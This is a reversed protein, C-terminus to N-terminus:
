QKYDHASHAPHRGRELELDVITKIKKFLAREKKAAWTDRKPDGSTYCNFVSDLSSTKSLCRDIVHLALKFQLKRSNCIEKKSHGEWSPGFMLQTLGISKGGDGMIKCTEVSKWLGSENVAIAGLLEIATSQTISHKISGAKFEEEVAITIDKAVEEVREKSVTPAAMHMALTLIMTLNIM